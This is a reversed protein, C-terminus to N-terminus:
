AFFNAFRATGTNRAVAVPESEDTSVQDPVLQNNAQLKSLLSVVVDMQQVLHQQQRQFDEQTDQLQRQTTHLALLQQQVSVNKPVFSNVTGGLSTGIALNTTAVATSEAVDELKHQDDAQANQKKKKVKQRYSSIIGIMVALESLAGHLVFTGAMALMSLSSAETDGDSAAAAPNGGAGGGGSKLQRRKSPLHLSSPRKLNQLRRVEQDEESGFEDMGDDQEETHDGPEYTACDINKNLTYYNEWLEELIGSTQMESSHYNFVDRILNSCKISSDAKVAFASSVEEVTRGVWQLDCRPNYNSEMEYGLWSAHAGVVLDCKGNQLGRYSEMEQTMPVRIAQPYRKAMYVDANTGAWTCM